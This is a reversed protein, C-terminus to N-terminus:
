FAVNNSPAKFRILRVITNNYRNSVCKIELSVTITHFYITACFPAVWLPNRKLETKLVAFKHWTLRLWNDKTILIIKWAHLECKEMLKTFCFCQMRPLPNVLALTPGIKLGPTEQSFGGWQRKLTSNFLHFLREPKLIKPNLKLSAM